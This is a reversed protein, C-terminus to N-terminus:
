AHAKPAEVSLSWGYKDHDISPHLTVSIKESLGADRVIGKAYYYLTKGTVLWKATPYSAFSQKLREVTLGSKQAYELDQQSAPM